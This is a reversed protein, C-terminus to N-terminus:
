AHKAGQDPRGFISCLSTWRARFVPRRHALDTWWIPWYNSGKTYGTPTSM